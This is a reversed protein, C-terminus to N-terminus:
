TGFRTRIFFLSTVGNSSHSFFLSVREYKRVQPQKALTLTGIVFFCLSPGLCHVTNKQTISKVVDSISEQYYSRFHGVQMDVCNHLGSVSNYCGLHKLPRLLTMVPRIMTM